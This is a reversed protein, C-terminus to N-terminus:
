FSPIILNYPCVSNRSQDLLKRAVVEVVVQVSELHGTRGSSVQKYTPDKEPGGMYGSVVTKVGEVKEFSAETCWFCGGAFTAMELKAASASAAVVVVLVTLFPYKM